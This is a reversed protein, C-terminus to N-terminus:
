KLLSDLLAANPYPRLGMCYIIKNTSLDYLTVYNIYGNTSPTYSVLYLREDKLFAKVLDTNKSFLPLSGLRVRDLNEDLLAYHLTAEKLSLVITQSDSSFVYQAEFPLPKFLADSAQYPLIDIGNGGIFVAHGLSNIAYHAESIASPHTPLKKADIVTYDAADITYVFANYANVEGGILIFTDGLRKIHSVYMSGLNQSKLAHLPSVLGNTKDVIYIDELSGTFAVIALNHEEYYDHFYFRESLGQTKRFTNILRLLYQADKLPLFGETYSTFRTTSSTLTDRSVEFGNIVQMSIDSYFLTIKFDESAKLNNLLIDYRLVPKPILFFLFATLMTCFLGLLIIKKM